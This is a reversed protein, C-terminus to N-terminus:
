AAGALALRLFAQNRFRKLRRTIAFRDIKLSRAVVTMPKGEVMHMRVAAVTTPDETALLLDTQESAIVHNEISTSRRDRIINAYVTAADRLSVKAGDAVPKRERNVCIPRRQRDIIRVGNKVLGLLYQSPTGRDAEFRSIKPDLVMRVVEAYVDRRFDDSSWPRAGNIMKDILPSFRRVFEDAASSNAPTQRALLVTADSYSAASASSSM